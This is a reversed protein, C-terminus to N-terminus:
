HTPPTPNHLGPVSHLFDLLLRNFREPQEMMLFHGAEGWLEYRLNPFVDQHLRKREDIRSGSRRTATVALVPIRVPGKLWVDSTGMVQLASIGVHQPTLLMKRKIEARVFLPTTNVFMSEIFTSATKRYDRQLDRLWPQPSTRKVKWIPGDLAIIAEVLAPHDRFVRVAVPVGMSHGMLAARQVGAHKLVAAVGRAFHEITYDIGAPADSQGHGPLDVSIVRFQQQALPPTQLRWFTANCAWGHIQVVAVPGEGDVTYHVKSGDPLEAFQDNAAAAALLLTGALWLM